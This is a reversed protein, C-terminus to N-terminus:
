CLMGQGEEKWLSGEGKLLANSMSMANVKDKDIHGGGACCHTAGNHVWCPM